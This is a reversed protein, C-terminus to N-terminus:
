LTDHRELLGGSDPGEMRALPGSCAGCRPRSRLITRVFVFVDPRTIFPAEFTAESATTRLCRGRASSTMRPGHLSSARAAERGGLCFLQLTSVILVFAFL